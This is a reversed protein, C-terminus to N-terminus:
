ANNSSSTEGWIGGSRSRCEWLSVAKFKFSLASLVSGILKSSNCVNLTNNSSLLRKLHCEGGEAIKTTKESASTGCPTGAEFKDVSSDRLVWWPCSHLLIGGLSWRQKVFGASTSGRCCRYLRYTTEKYRKDSKTIVFKAKSWSYGRLHARKRM